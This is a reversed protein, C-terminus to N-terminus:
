DTCERPIETVTSSNVNIRVYLDGQGTGNLCLRLNPADSPDPRINDLTLEVGDNAIEGLYLPEAEEDGPWRIRLYEPGDSDGEAVDVLVERDGLMVSTIEEYDPGSSCAALIVAPLVVWWVRRRERIPDVHSM